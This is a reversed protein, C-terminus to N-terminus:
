VDFVLNDMGLILVNIGHYHKRTARISRPKRVERSGRTV